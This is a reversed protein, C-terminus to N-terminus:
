RGILLLGGHGDGDCSGCALEATKDNVFQLGLGALGDDRENARRRVRSPEADGNALSVVGFGRGQFRRQCPDIHQKEDRRAFNALPGRLVVIHDLRRSRGFHLADDVRTEEM